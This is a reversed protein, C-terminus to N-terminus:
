EAAGASAAGASVTGRNRLAGMIEDQGALGAVKGDADVGIADGSPNLVASDLAARLSDQGVVFARGVPLPDGDAGPPLWGSPKGDGTVLLRWADSAGASTVVRSTNLTLGDSGVFSWDYGSIALYGLEEANAGPTTAVRLQVATLHGNEAPSSYPETCPVDPTISDVAFTLLPDGEPSTLGGEEGLAKVINGRDNTEPRTPEAESSTAAEEEGQSSPLTPGASSGDSASNGGCAALTVVAAAGVALRRWTNSKM